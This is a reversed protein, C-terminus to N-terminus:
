SDANTKIVRKSARHYARVYRIPSPLLPVIQRTARLGVDVARTELPSLEYGYQQRLPVPLMAFTLRSIPYALPAAYWRTQGMIFPAIKRATEGVVVNGRTISTDIYDLLGDYTAPIRAPKIGFLGAVRVSDTYFAQKDANSLPQIYTEYGHIAGEVLTSFVWMALKPNRPNYATGSSYHGIATELQGTAARHVRDIENIAQEVEETTGFVTALTLDLTRKLRLFPKDFVYSHQYVSEAVLPHAIQMLLVRAGNLLLVQERNIKWITSDPAFYFPHSPQTTTDVLINGVLRKTKRCSLTAGM